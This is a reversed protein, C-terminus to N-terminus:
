TAVGNWKRLLAEEYPESTVGAPWGKFLQNHPTAEARELEAPSPELPTGHAPYFFFVVSDRKVPSLVVRHVPAHLAPALHEVFDGCNLVLSGEEPQVDTWEGSARDKIQLGGVADQVVLTMAGWDTHPSSGTTDGGRENYRILRLMSLKDGGECQLDVGLHRGLEEAIRTCLAALADFAALARQRWGEGLEAPFVNGVEFVSRGAEARSGLSFQEKDELLEGEEGASGSEGFPSLFGRLFASQGGGEVGAAAAKAAAPLDFFERSLALIAATDVGHGRLNAAGQAGLVAALRAAWADGGVDVREVMGPKSHPIACSQLAPYRRHANANRM